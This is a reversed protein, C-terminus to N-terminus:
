EEVRMLDVLRQISHNRALLEQFTGSDAISGSEMLFVKDVHQITNLRHAILVITVKGRMQNLAAYIEAESEADLASTAEDMILLSPKSYLARALGLRQLQGGSLKDQFKGLASDIGDPLAEIVESLNAQALCELVRQRNIAPGSEGLAVNEAISGPVMGPRQPVYSILGSGIPKISEGKATILNVQGSDPDLLGCIIDTLTSKGSGSNGILAVQSGPEVKFSVNELSFRSGDSYQFSAQSIELGAAGESANVEKFTETKFDTQDKTLEPGFLLKHAATAAPTIQKIALLSSQLPLLAATLRYGGALFVGLTGAAQIIDGSLAQATVFLGVGILLASEIIYRPMGALYSSAASSNAATIRAQYLTDIYVPKKGLVSLERFVSVLNSVATDSKIASKLATEGTKKLASGLVFQILAAVVAFYTLTAFAAVPDVLFFGVTILLFLAGEALLTNAAGLLGNFAAPSGGGIAYMVQERSLKRARTLNGGFIHSAIARASRAEVKAVFLATQRTLLVAAVAKFLFLALVGSAIAPLTAANVAVIEIGSLTITRNPDSGGTLFLATSTLILGVALVGVLDLFSLSARLLSLSWWTLKEKPSM